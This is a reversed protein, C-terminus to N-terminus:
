RSARSMLKATYNFLEGFVPLPDSVDFVPGITLGVRKTEAATPSPLIFDRGKVAYFLSSALDKLLYRWRVGELQETEPVADRGALDNFAALAIRKGAHHSLAFWLAPRPNVEIIKLKGDREDYKFETSAVGHFGAASLLGESLRRTEELNESRVLSASGFGPPYQRLKRGTFAQRVAGDKAIYGGFVTINSEPGPIIEQVLWGGGYGTAVAAVRRFEEADKAIFVKRGAMLSKVRHIITPKMLCPYVVRDALGALESSECAWFAPAALGHARCLETFRGKDVIAAYTEPTYSSQFDYRARLRAANRTVFEIYADRTPMLVGRAGEQEAATLLKEILAEEDRELLCGPGATLHKSYCGPQRSSDVGLVRVGVEGLERVAYLGTPSLGLVAAFTKTM